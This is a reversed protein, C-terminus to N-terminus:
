YIIGYDNFINYVVMLDENTWPPANYFAKLFVCCLGYRPKRVGRRLPYYSKKFPKAIQNGHRFDSYGKHIRFSKYGQGPGLDIDFFRDIDDYYRIIPQNLDREIRNFMETIEDHSIDRSFYISKDARYTTIGTVGPIPRHEM